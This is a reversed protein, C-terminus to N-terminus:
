CPLLEFLWVDECSRSHLHICISHLRAEGREVLGNLWGSKEGFLWGNVRGVEELWMTLLVKKM